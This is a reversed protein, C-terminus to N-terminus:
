LASVTSNNELPKNVTLTLEKTVVVGRNDRVNVRVTYTGIAGPTFSITSDTTYDKAVTYEEATTLKYSVQCERPEIGGESNVNVIAASGIVIRDEALASNNVLAKKVTFNIYKKVVTGESDKAMVCLSCTGPNQPAYTLLQDSSYPYVSRYSSDGKEKVNMAFTYPAKGGSALAEVIADEGIVVVNNAIGSDNAMSDGNTPFTKESNTRAAIFDVKKSPVSELLDGYIDYLSKATIIVTDGYRVGNVIGNEFVQEADPGVTPIYVSAQVRNEAVRTWYQRAESHNDVVIGRRGDPTVVEATFSIPASISVIM